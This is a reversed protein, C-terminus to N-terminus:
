FICWAHVISLAMINNLPLYNPKYKFSLGALHAMSSKTKGIYMIGYIIKNQWHVYHIIDLLPISDPLSSVLFQTLQAKNLATFQPNKTVNTCRCACTCAPNIHDSNTDVYLTHIHGWNTKTTSKGYVSTTPKKDFKYILEYM